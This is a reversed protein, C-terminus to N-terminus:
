NVPYYTGVNILGDEIGYSTYEITVGNITIKGKYFQGIGPNKTIVDEAIMQNVEDVSM